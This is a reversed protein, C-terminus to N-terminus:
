ASQLLAALIAKADTVSQIGGCLMADCVGIEKAKLVIAFSAGRDLDGWYLSGDDNECAISFGTYYRDSPKFAWQTLANHDIAKTMTNM